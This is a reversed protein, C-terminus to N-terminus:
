SRVSPRTHIEFDDESQGRGVIAGFAGAAILGFLPPLPLTETM